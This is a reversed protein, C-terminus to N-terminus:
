IYKRTKDFVLLFNMYALQMKPIGYRQEFTISNEMSLM